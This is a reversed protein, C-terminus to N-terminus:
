CTMDLLYQCIMSRVVEQIIYNNGFYVVAFEAYLSAAWLYRLFASANFKSTNSLYHGENKPSQKDDKAKAEMIGLNARIFIM